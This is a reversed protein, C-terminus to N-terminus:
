GIARLRLRGDRQGSFPVRLVGAKNADGTFNWQHVGQFLGGGWTSTRGGTLQLEYKAEPKLGTILLMKVELNPITVEGETVPQDVTAFLMITDNEVLAGVLNTGDVLEVRPARADGTDGIELVHLFLDEKAAVTPSVEIRWAGPVVDRENSKLLQTFDNGYFTRWMKQLYPDAPLPGGEAPDLPWNRGAGWGGGSEDGPTWFEWGAGGRKVVERQRPLLAHVRLRGGGDEFTFQRAERYATGGHGIDKGQETAAVRPENVGHLLWVKKYAPDTSRVRDFVVLVNDRPTYLLERTFLQLKSSHYARTANGRAYHFEGPLYDTAELRALDWLDRTKRWDERSRITNWYRSSDMRQGGDNAAPWLNEAWFFHEGPQYVLMTNHAVTRRYYNLYHPSEIDTYDAGSDIALYGKHYITFQNQDLHQHKAVYPGANFAIWTSEKGWGDRMILDGIGSFLHQRPLEVEGALAPNRPKVEPDDWLFELIPIYWKKTSTWGSERLMWAAYPDKFRNITYGLVDNDQALFYPWEQDDDRSTTGNPLVKYLYTDVYHRFSSFRRAPDDATTTRRLEALLAMPLFTIRAYDMSEHYGGEPAIFQSIDLVNDLSRRARERLPAASQEVSPHGEIAALAFSALTLYRVSYNHYMVLSPESLAADMFMREAGRLLEGAIRDKLPEDFGKYNYLWDFALSWRVYDMYTRSGVKEPPRTKRMEDTARRAFSEDGTLLYTLSWGAIDDSPRLNAAYRARLTTFGTYPDREGILLRPRVVKASQQGQVTGAFVIGIILLLASAAVPRAVARKMYRQFRHNMM